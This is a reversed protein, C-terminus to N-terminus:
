RLFGLVEAAFPEPQACNVVHGGGPIVVKRAGPIRAAIADAAIRNAPMEQEGLIVLTPARVSALDDAHAPPVLNSPPTPDLLDAGSYTALLRQALAVGEPPTAGFHSAAWRAIGARLSDLGHTRAAEIWAGVPPPAGAASVDLGAFPGPGFLVLRDVMEPYRVAFTLAVAAGASHGMVHVKAYGLRELLAKLDAADATADPKGTAAGFGRRDYRIVTHQRALREVDLDWFARNVAWGHILVLPPGSGQVEYPLVVGNVEVVGSQARLAAGPALTLVFALLLARPRRAAHRSVGARARKRRTRATRRSRAGSM